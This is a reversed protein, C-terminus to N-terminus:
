SISFTDRKLFPHDVKFSVFYLHLDVGMLKSEQSLLNEGNAEKLIACKDNFSLFHILLKTHEVNCGKFCVSM